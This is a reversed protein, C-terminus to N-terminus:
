NIKIAWYTYLQGNANIDGASTNMSFGDSDLNVNANTAGNEKGIGNLLIYPRANSTGANDGVSVTRVSDYVMWNSSGTGKIVLFDPQFNLGTIAKSDANGTYSGFKQYGAVDHFCYAIFQDGDTNVDTDTGVTFSTATPATSNWYVSTTASALNTPLKFRETASNGSSGTNYKHYIAWFLNSDLSKIIMMDPAASLGHPIKTGAVGDGEYQVISMGANANASVIIEPPGGLELDDNDSVTEAYLEAVGVDSVVGNYIRLQEILGNFSSQYVDSPTYYLAGITIRQDSDGNWSNSSTTQKDVLVGDIYSKRVRTAQDLTVVVHHWNDDDYTTTSNFSTNGSSYRTFIEMTGDALISINLNLSNNAYDNFIYGLSESSKKFWVSVSYTSKGNFLGSAFSSGAGLNIYSATGSGISVAKNFNGTAYSVNSATGNYTGTVDNANDEFKYVAKAAGGFITPENDDAKWAYSIYHYAQSIDYGGRLTFGDSTFGDLGGSSDQAATLNSVIRNKPGRITDYQNWNNSANRSKVWLLSGKSLDFNYGSVTQANGTGTYAKIDFSDALTPATTDPDAAFAMYIWQQGNGNLDTSIFTFGNSNFNVGYTPSYEAENTNANIFNNRPNTTNRKNDIIYWDSTASTRKSLLFAPEFGTEISQTAGTGIYSGFKSFGDISKFAYAIHNGSNVWYFVSSTFLPRSSNSNATTANLYILDMSGDVLDHYVSWEEVGDLRKIIVVDPKEGLNHGFTTQSGTGSFNIISFGADTNTQVTTTVAGDSNSSTTGGNAKWCWAVYTENNTNQGNNAGVTFGDTGFSSLGNTTTHEANTRNSNLEKQVGRTSDMISHNETNSRRKIWVWDPKFGVGTIAQTGGNGTYTVAKFNKSAAFPAPQSSMLRKNLSM